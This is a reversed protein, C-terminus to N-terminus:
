DLFKMTAPFITHLFVDMEAPTKGLQRGVAPFMAKRMEKLGADFRYTDTVTTNALSPSFPGRAVPAIQDAADTQHFWGLVAPRASGTSRPPARGSGPSCRPCSSRTWSPEARM